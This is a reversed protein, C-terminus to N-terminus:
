AADVRFDELAHGEHPWDALRLFVREAQRKPLSAVQAAPL